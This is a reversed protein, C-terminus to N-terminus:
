LILKMRRPFYGVARNSLIENGVIGTTDAM